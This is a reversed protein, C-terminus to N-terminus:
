EGPRLTYGAGRVTHILPTASVLALKQRLRSLHQDIVNTQPDFHYNWVQELLMSRTVVRGAHRALLELIEYERATLDVARGELQVRRGLRDIALAGVRIESPEEALAGRRGLADVRALLESIAVPKALYDDGGARLGKVREDVDGLASLMMVPTSDGTARLTQLIKLGDVHPLMRDLLIVDYRETSAQLLGSRGDPRHDVHHGAEELGKRLYVAVGPDDEVLLIQMRATKWLAAGSVIASARVQRCEFTEAIRGDPRDPLLPAM